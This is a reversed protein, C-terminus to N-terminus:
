VSFSITWQDPGSQVLTLRSVGNRLLEDIRQRLHMTPVNAEQRVRRVGAATLSESAGVVGNASRALRPLRGAKRLNLLRQLLEENSRSEGESRLVECFRDFAGSTILSDVPIGTLEYHRVLREDEVSLPSAPKFVDSM